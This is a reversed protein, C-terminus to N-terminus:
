WAAIPKLGKRGWRLPTRSMAMTAPVIKSATASTSHAASEPYLDDRQDLGVRGPFAIETRPALAHDLDALAVEDDHGLVGRIQPPM